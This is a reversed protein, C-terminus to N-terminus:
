CEVKCFECTSMINEEILMIDLSSLCNVEDPDVCVKECTTNTYLSFNSDTLSYSDYVLENGVLKRVSPFQEYRELALIMGYLAMVEYFDVDSETGTNAKSVFASAKKVFCFNAQSILKCKDM